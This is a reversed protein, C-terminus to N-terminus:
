SIRVVRDGNILKVQKLAYLIDLALVTYSFSFYGPWKERNKTLLVMIEDITLPEDLFSLIFGALGVLSDRFKVHKHPLLASQINM